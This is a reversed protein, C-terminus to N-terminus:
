FSMYSDRFLFCKFLFFFTPVAEEAKKEEAKDAPVEAKEAAGEKPKMMQKLFDKM